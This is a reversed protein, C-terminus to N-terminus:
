LVIGQLSELWSEVRLTREAQVKAREAELYKELEPIWSPHSHALLVLDDKITPLCDEDTSEDESLIDTANGDQAENATRNQEGGRCCWIARLGTQVSGGGNEEENNQGTTPEEGGNNGSGSGSPGGQDLPMNAPLRNRYADIRVLEDNSLV